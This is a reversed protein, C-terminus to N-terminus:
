PKFGKCYLGVGEGKMRSRFRCTEMECGVCHGVLGGYNGWNCV